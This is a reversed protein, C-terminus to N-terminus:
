YSRFQLVKESWLEASASQHRSDYLRRFRKLFKVIRRSITENRRSEAGSTFLKAVANRTKWRFYSFSQGVLRRSHKQQQRHPTASHFFGRSLNLLNRGLGFLRVYAFSASTASQTHWKNAEIEMHNRHHQYQRNRM